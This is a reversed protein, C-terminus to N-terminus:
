LLRQKRRYFYRLHRFYCSHRWFCTWLFNFKLQWYWLKFPFSVKLFLLLRHLILKLAM